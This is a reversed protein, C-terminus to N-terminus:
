AGGGLRVARHALLVAVPLEAPHPVRHTRMSAKLQEQRARIEELDERPVRVVLSAAPVRRTEAHCWRRAM